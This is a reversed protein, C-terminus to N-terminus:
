KTKTIDRFTRVMYWFAWSLFSIVLGLALPFGVLLPITGILGDMDADLLYEFFTEM